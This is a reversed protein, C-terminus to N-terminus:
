VVLGSRVGRRGAAGEAAARYLVTGFRGLGAPVTPRDAWDDAFQSPWGHRIGYGDIHTTQAECVIQVVSLTILNDLTKKQELRTPM